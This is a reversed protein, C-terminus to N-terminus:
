PLRQLLAPLETVSKCRFLTETEAYSPDDSILVARAGSQIAWNIVGPTDDIILADSPSIGLDAFIHEYYIPSIKLADVLDPGYLRGFCDRIGMGGLYGALDASSEGSATHLTYGQHSLLRITDVVGPLASQVRPIIFANARHALQVCEDEPQTAVGVFECMGRLWDLHYHWDFDAYDTAARMRALINEPSLIRQMIEGNAESWADATGGLLPVFFEAVFRRWQPGRLSNDNMVGGDDFFLTLGAV